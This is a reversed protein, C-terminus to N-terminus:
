FVSIGKSAEFKPRKYPMLWNHVALYLWNINGVKLFKIRLEESTSVSVCLCVQVFYCALM